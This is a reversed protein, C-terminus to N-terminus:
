SERLKGRLNDLSPVKGKVWVKGTEYDAQIHHRHEQPINHKLAVGEWWATEQEMQIGLLTQLSEFMRYNGRRKITRDKLEAMEEDTLKWQYKEM